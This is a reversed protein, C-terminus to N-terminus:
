ELIRQLATRWYYVFWTAIGFIKFGDEVLYAIGEQPLVFDGLVSFALLIIAAILIKYESNLIQKRFYYFYGGILLLYGVYVLKQPIHFYWPFIAEHFMFLDDILLVASILGSCLLFSSHQTKKTAKTIAFAFICAAAASCWLLAGIHSVFGTLPHANFTVAPDATFHEIPIDLVKSFIIILIILFTIALYFWFLLTFPSKLRINDAKMNEAFAM